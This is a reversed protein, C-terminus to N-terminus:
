GDAGTTSYHFGTLMASRDVVYASALVVARRAVVEGSCNNSQSNSKTQLLAMKSPPWPQQYTTTLPKTSQSLPRVTVNNPSYHLLRRNFYKISTTLRNIKWHNVTSLHQLQSHSPQLLTSDKTSSTPTLRFHQLSYSQEKDLSLRWQGLGRVYNSTQNDLSFFAQAPKETLCTNADIPHACPVHSYKGLREHQFKKLHPHLHIM